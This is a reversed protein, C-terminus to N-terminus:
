TFPNEPPSSKEGQASPPGWLEQCLEVLSMPVIRAAAERAAQEKEKKIRANQTELRHCRPCLLEIEGKSHAERYWLMRAKSGLGHHENGRARKDHFELSDTNPCRACKNGLDAKIKNRLRFQPSYHNPTM